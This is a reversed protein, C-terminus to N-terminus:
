GGNGGHYDPCFGPATSCLGQTVPNRDPAPEKSRRASGDLGRYAAGLQKRQDPYARSHSPGEATQSRALLPSAMLTAFATGVLIIKV